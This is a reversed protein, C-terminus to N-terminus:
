PSPCLVFEALLSKLIKVEKKMWAGFVEGVIGRTGSRSCRDAYGALHSRHDPSGGKHLRTEPPQASLPEGRTAQDALRAHTACLGTNADTSMEVSNFEMDGCLFRLQTSLCVSRSVDRTM